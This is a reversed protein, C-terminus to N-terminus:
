EKMLGTQKFNLNAFEGHIEKAAKDYAKAADEEKKFLGLSQYKSGNKIRARWYSYRKKTKSLYSFPHVGLYKSKGWSRRNKANQDRTCVRLNCKQNNLGNFDKHDVQINTDTVGMVLRHMIITKKGEATIVSTHAYTTKRNSSYSRQWSYKSLKEFDDDDVLAVMDTNALKVKKM